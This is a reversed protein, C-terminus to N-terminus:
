FSLKEGAPWLNPEAILMQLERQHCRSSRSVPHTQHTKFGIGPMFRDGLGENAPFPTPSGPM